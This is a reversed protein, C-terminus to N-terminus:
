ECERRGTQIDIQCSGNSTGDDDDVSKIIGARKGGVQYTTIGKCGNIWAKMYLNKFDEWPTNASVNCTKSVASDVRKAACTLVALHEDITVDQCRKGNVGFVRHGYDPFDTEVKGSPM